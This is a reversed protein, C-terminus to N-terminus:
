LKIAQLYCNNILTETELNEQKKEIHLGVTNTKKKPIKGTKTMNQTKYYKTKLTVKPKSIM